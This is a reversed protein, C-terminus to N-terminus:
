IRSWRMGFRKDADSRSADSGPITIGRGRVYRQRPKVALTVTSTDGPGDFATRAKQGATSQATSTDRLDPKGAPAYLGAWPSATTM